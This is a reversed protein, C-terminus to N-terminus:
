FARYVFDVTSAAFVVLLSLLLLMYALKLVIRQKRKM